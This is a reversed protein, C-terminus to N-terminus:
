SSWKEVKVAESYAHIMKTYTIVDPQCGATKMRTFMSEAEALRGQSLFLSSASSPDSEVM